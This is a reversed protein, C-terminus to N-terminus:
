GARAGVVGGQARHRVRSRPARRGDDFRFGCVAGRKPPARKPGSRWTSGGPRRCPSSCRRPGRAADLVLYKAGAGVVTSSTGSWPTRHPCVTKLATFGLPDVGEVTAGGARGDLREALAQMEPLEPM